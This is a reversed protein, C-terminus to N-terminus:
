DKSPSVIQPRTLLLDISAHGQYRTRDREGEIQKRAVILHAVKSWWARIGYYEAEGCGLFL